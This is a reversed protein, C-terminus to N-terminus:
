EYSMLVFRPKQHKTLVMKQLNALLRRKRAAERLRGSRSAM